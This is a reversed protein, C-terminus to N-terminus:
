ITCTSLPGYLLIESLLFVDFLTNFFTNITINEKM